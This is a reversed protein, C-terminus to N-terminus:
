AGRVQDAHLFESDPVSNADGQTRLTGDPLPEVIRHLVREKKGREFLVVTNATLEEAEAPRIMVVDGPAVLPQMSGSTVLTPSWDMFAWPIVIWLTSRFLTTYPFLTSRPPRRIM